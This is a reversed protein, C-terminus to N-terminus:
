PLGAEQELNVGPKPGLTQNIVFLLLLVNKAHMCIDVFMYQM